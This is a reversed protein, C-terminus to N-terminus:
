GLLLREGAALEAGDDGSPFLHGYIDLTMVISAHGLRGQVVKAPLELGGDVKRNICWSAFFHRFAHLGTYKAELIPKGKKDRKAIGQEDLVPKVIGAKLMTPILQRTVINAHAQINGERTPFVLGLQGDANKPCQLRWEHLSQVLGPALPITREGAESKPPGIRNYSDARQRVHLENRSPDVDQWRLGRL